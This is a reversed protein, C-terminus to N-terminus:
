KVSDVPSVVNTSDCKIVTSDTTTGTDETSVADSCAAFATILAAFLIFKKM